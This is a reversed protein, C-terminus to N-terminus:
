HFNQYQNSSSRIHFPPTKLFDLLKKKIELPLFIKPTEWKRLSRLTATFDDRVGVLTESAVQRSKPLLYLSYGSFKFLDLTEHSLNAEMIAFVSM